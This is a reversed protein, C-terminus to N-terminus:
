IGVESKGCAGTCTDVVGFLIGIGSTDMVGSIGVEVEGTESDVVRTDIVGSGGVEVVFDWAAADNTGSGGTDATVSIM